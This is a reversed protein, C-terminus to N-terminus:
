SSFVSLKGGTAAGLRLLIYYGCKESSVGIQFSSDLLILGRLGCLLYTLLQARHVPHIM